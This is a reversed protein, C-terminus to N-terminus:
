LTEGNIDTGKCENDACSEDYTSSSGETESEMGGELTWKSVCSNGSM